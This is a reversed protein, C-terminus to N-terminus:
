KDFVMLTNEFWSCGSCRARLFDSQEPNHKWGRAEMQAIIYDNPQCNVHGFGGQGPIAWSMIIKKSASNAINDLVVSEYQPEIHEGVELCITADHPFNYCGVFGFETSSIDWYDVQLFSADIPNADYPFVDIDSNALIFMSYFAPGAGIDCISIIEDDKKLIDNIWYALELSFAHEKLADELKWGGPYGRLDAAEKEAKNKNFCYDLIEQNIEALKDDHYPMNNERWYEYLKTLLENAKSM